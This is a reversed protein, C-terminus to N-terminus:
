GQGALVVIGLGYRTKDRSTLLGILIHHLVSPPRVKRQNDQYDQNRLLRSLRQPLEELFQM